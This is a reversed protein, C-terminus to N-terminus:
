QTNFGGAKYGQTEEWVWLTEPWTSCSSALFGDEEKQKRIKSVELERLEKRQREELETM